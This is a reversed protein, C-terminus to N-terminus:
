SNSWSSKVSARLASPLCGFSDHVTAISTIGEACAANTVLMLHAADLAHVFNPAVGNAAKDKNIENEFGDALHQRTRVSVGGEQLWLTVRKIKPDHYRNIWPIGVPTTWSLPKAEHAMARALKQLHKMAESPKKVIDEISDFIHGALYRAAASPREKDGDHYPAFPHDEYKGELVAKKLPEMLDVQLQCAMGFKKSSYAYTMVNRKVLKRTVGYDLTMRALARIRDSAKVQEENETDEPQHDLDADIRFAVKGAVTNYIDQPLDNPTLNVLKGEEARTMASLHQLGSCSGDFAVPMHSVYASPTGADNLASALEHIAALFLFPKDATAWAFNVAYPASTGLPDAAIATLLSLNEDVWKVREDLPQKDIKNFAGCNAVHVKLWYLGDDGLPEGDKFLFLARVRDDRQFNFHVTSYVRGRWDCNMATYFEAVDRLEDAQKMDEAFQIRNSQSARNLAHIEARKMKALRQQPESLAKWDADTMKPPLPMDKELPIGPIVLQRKRVEHLVDLMAPNIKWAVSQLNNVADTAPKITGDRFAARVAAQTQVHRSRLFPVSYGIRPDNPGCGEAKTWPKPPELNPFFVPARNIAKDLAADVIVNANATLAINKGGDEVWQFADTLTNMMVDVAWNGALLKDEQEWDRKMFADRKVNAAMQVAAKQRRPVHQYKTKMTKAVRAALRPNHETLDAAWCEGALNHGVAMRITILSERTALCHLVTRLTCLAIVDPDLGSIVRVLNVLTDRRDRPLTLSEALAASLAPLYASSLAKGGTTSGWGESRQVRAQRRDHKDIAAEIERPLSTPDEQPIINNINNKPLVQTDMM